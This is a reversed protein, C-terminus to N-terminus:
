FVLGWLLLAILAMVVAFIAGGIRSARSRADRPSLRTGTRPLASATVIPGGDTWDTPTEAYIGALALQGAPRLTAARGGFARSLVVMVHGTIADLRDRDPEIVADPVGCGDVLYTALGVGALDTIAFTEVYIPDIDRVGLANDLAGPADFAEIGGAEIILSFVRVVGREGADVTMASRAGEAM